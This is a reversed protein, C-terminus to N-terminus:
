DDGDGRTVGAQDAYREFIAAVDQMQVKLNQLVLQVSVNVHVYM